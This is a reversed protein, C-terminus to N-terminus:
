SSSEYMALVEDIESLKEPEGVAKYVDEMMEEKETQKMKRQMGEYVAKLIREGLETYKDSIPKYWNWFSDPLFANFYDKWQTYVGGKKGDPYDWREYVKAVRPKFNYTDKGFKRVRCVLLEPIAELVKSSILKKSPSSLLLVAFKRGILQIYKAVTKVFPEYWDLVFLWFGADDWHLVKYKKGAPIDFILQLFDKPLFVLWKKVQEYDPKVCRAVVTRSGVEEYEWEGFAEAMAQSCYSSKGIRQKGEVVMGFFGDHFYTDNIEWALRLSDLKIRV